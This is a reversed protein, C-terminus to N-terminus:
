IAPLSLLQDDPRPSSIEWEVELMPAVFGAPSKLQASSAWQQSVPQSNSSASENSSVNLERHRGLDEPRAGWDSPVEPAPAKQGRYRDAFRRWIAWSEAEWEAQQVTIHSLFYRELDWDDDNASWVSRFGHPV